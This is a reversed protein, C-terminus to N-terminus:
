MHGIYMEGCAKIMELDGHSYQAFLEKKGNKRREEKEREKGGKRQEDEREHM